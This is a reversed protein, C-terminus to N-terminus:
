TYTCISLSYSSCFVSSLSVGNCGVRTLLIFRHHHHTCVMKINQPTDESEDMMSDHTARQYSTNRLGAGNTQAVGRLRDIAPNSLQRHHEGEREQATLGTIGEESVVSGSCSSGETPIESMSIRVDQYSSSDTSTHLRSDRNGRQRPRRAIVLHIHGSHPLDKQMARRLTEMAAANSKSLLAEGNVEILQDNM